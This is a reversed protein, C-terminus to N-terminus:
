PVRARMLQLVVRFFVLGDRLSHLKSEGARRHYAIPVQQTRWRKALAWITISFGFDFHDHPLSVVQDRRRRHFVRLGSAIDDSGRGYLVRVIKSFCFNGFGRLLPMGEGWFPRVGFVIDADTRRAHHLCEGLDHPDYTSDMDLFGLWDGEAAAFGKKLCAGYGSRAPQRILRVGPHRLIKEPSGDTSADDVIIIEVGSVKGAAVLRERLATLKGVVDDIAAEENFCPIVVSFLPVDAAPM